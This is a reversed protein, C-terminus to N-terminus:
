LPRRKRACVGTGPRSSTRTIRSLSNYRGVAESTILPLMSPPAVSYLSSRTCGCSFASASFSCQSVDSILTAGRSSSAAFGESSSAGATLLGTSAFSGTAKRPGASPLSIRPM